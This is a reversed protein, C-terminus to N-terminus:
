ATLLDIIENRNQEKLIDSRIHYRYSQDILQWLKAKMEGYAQSFRLCDGGYFDLLDEELRYVNVGLSFQEAYNYIDQRSLEKISHHASGAFDIICVNKIRIPDAVFNVFSDHPDIIIEGNKLAPKRDGKDILGSCWPGPRIRISSAVGIVQPGKVIAHSNTIFGAGCHCLQTLFVTKGAGGRGLLLTGARGM